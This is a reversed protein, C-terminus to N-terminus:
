APAQLNAYLAELPERLSQRLACGTTFSMPHASRQDTDDWNDLRTGECRAITVPPSLVARRTSNM